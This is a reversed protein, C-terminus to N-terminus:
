PPAITREAPSGLVREETHRMAGVLLGIAASLGFLAAGLGWGAVVDSLYHVGLLVRTLGITATLLLAVGLIIRRRPPRDEFRRVLAYAVVTYATTHAAHGSPFSATTISPDYGPPRLRGVGAKIFHVAVVIALFGLV